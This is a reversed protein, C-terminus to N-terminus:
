CPSAPCRQCAQLPPSPVSSSKTAHLVCAAHAAAHGPAVHGPQVDSTEYHKSHAKGLHVITSNLQSYAADYFWAIGELCYTAANAACAPRGDFPTHTYLRLCCATCNDPQLAELFHQLLAIAQTGVTPSGLKHLSHKLARWTTQFTWPTSSTPVPTRFTTM